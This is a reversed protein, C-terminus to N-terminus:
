QYWGRQAEFMGAYQGNAAMLVDHAGREMIKGEDIVLIEDALKTSGLRHSVFVTTKGRMLKEFDSYIRSESIPDLASTPEDLIKVPARSILSRAIAVRQWQGGSIDQGDKLIKGLPTDIGYKLSAITEDLGALHAAQVEKGKTHVDGLSINDKMAIYYKAFDQYVVSFLAKLTGAPYERLEKGNILIEGGYETYLGTVLKTITTKGAGNKGVFAYHRGAELKFSLGDLILRDGGPYRFRVNRFELSDFAIPEADPETLADKAESLAVFATLDKM